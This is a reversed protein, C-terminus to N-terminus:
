GGAAILATPAASTRQSINWRLVEGGATAAEAGEDTNNALIRMGPATRITFTGDLVPMGPIQAAEPNDKNADEAAGMAALSALSGMGGMMAGMPNDGSQFVFAPANIRVQGGDRLIMQVFPNTAPFGEITPFMFDHGLTGSVSYSVEFLGDGKHVVRNWGKQRELLRVMEETAKPDTPDIGGMMAKMMEADKKAKAAREEAGADWEARQSALEEKTCERPEYTEEDYCESPTFAEETTAGMLALKSLTLFFIEGEYSFTFSDPGTLALESTFKGPSMFCGSLVLAFGTLLAAARLRITSFMTM